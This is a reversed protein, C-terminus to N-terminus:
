RYSIKLMGEFYRQCISGFPLGGPHRYIIVNNISIDAAYSIGLFHLKLQHNSIDEKTLPFKRQFILEGEGEFISPVAIKTKQPNKEDAPFVIWEGDLSLIKRTKTIDFFSSDSSNIKYGPLERFLIQSKITPINFLVILILCYYKSIGM